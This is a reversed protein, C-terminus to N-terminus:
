TAAVKYSVLDGIIKEEEKKMELLYEAYQNDRLKELTKLEKRINIQEEMCKQKDKEVKTIKERQMDMLHNLKDFYRVYQTLTDPHTGKQVASLYKMKTNAHVQNMEDLEKSLENLKQEIRKLRIKIQKESSLTIEWLSHMTFVFKKM